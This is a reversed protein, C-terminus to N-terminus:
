NPSQFKNKVFQLAQEIAENKDSNNKAPRIIMNSQNNESMDYGLTRIKYRLTRYIENQNQCFSQYDIELKNKEPIHRLSNTIEKNTLHVQGAVQVYNDYTILENYEKPKFSFWTSMDGYYKKRINLISNINSEEDRKMYLFLCNPLHTFFSPIYSNIILAKTFFPKHYFHQLKYIAAVFNEFDATKCFAEQSIPIEPFSFHERWFYWFEHPELAGTTKGVDSSFQTTTIEVNLENKYQYNPNFLMEQVLAGVYPNKYFRSILNSPYCFTNLSALWQSLITTGSRPNGVIFLYPLSSSSPPKEHVVPTIERNLEQLIFELNNNKKYLAEKKSELDM